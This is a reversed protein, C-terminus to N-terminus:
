QKEDEIVEVEEKFSYEQIKQMYRNYLDDSKFITNVTGLHVNHMNTINEIYSDITEEYVVKMNRTLRINYLLYVLSYLMGYNIMQSNGLPEQMSLYVLGLIWFITFVILCIIGKMKGDKIM